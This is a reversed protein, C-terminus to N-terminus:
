GEARMRDSERHEEGTAARTRDEPQEKSAGGDAVVRGRVRVRRLHLKDFLRRHTKTGGVKRRIVVYDLLADTDADDGDSLISIAEDLSVPRRVVIFDPAGAGERV